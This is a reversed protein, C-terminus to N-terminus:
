KVPLALSTRWEEGVKAAWRPEVDLAFALCGDVHSVFSLVSHFKRHRVHEALGFRAVGRVHTEVRRKFEPTLRVSEEGVLLGLVVHRAGPPVVRTKRHHLSFGRSRVVERVAGITVKAAQRDFPGASSLVLDDSYRTYVYGSTMALEQLDADLPTAVANALAGSTPSGQPLWGVAHVDYSPIAQYRGTRSPRVLASPARTCIRALELSVLPSYGRAQFEHWVRKESVQGFFDHLDFKLMWRMGLHQRACMVISRRKRYAYSARHGADRSLARHLILRQVDMLVPEPASIRRTGGTQKPRYIDEYPDRQRQVVERLYLYPAGSLSALHRLSLIPGAEAAYSMEM